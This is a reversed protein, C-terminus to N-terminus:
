TVQVLLFAKRRSICDNGREEEYYGAGKGEGESQIMVQAEAQILSEWYSNKSIKTFAVWKSLGKVKLNAPAM